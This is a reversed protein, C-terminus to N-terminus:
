NSKAQELWVQAELRYFDSASAEDITNVRNQYRAHTIRSLDRMRELHAQYASIQDPKKPSLELEAKLWRKSWRYAVEAFPVFGERNNRWIVEYTARAADRKARSLKETVPAPKDSFARELPTLSFLVSILGLTFLSKLLMNNEEDGTTVKM